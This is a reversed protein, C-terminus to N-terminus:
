KNAAVDSFISLFLIFLAYLCFSWAMDEVFFISSALIVFSFVTVVSLFAFKRNSVLTTYWPVALALSLGSLFLFLWQAINVFFASILFFAGFLLFLFSFYKVRLNKKHTTNSLFLQHRFVFFLFMQLVRPFRMSIELQYLFSIGVFNKTFLRLVFDFSNALLIYLLEYSWSLGIITRHNVFNFIKIDSYRRYLLIAVFFLSFDRVGLIFLSASYDIGPFLLILSLSFLAFFRIFLLVVLGSRLRLAEFTVFTRAEFSTFLALLVLIIQAQSSVFFPIVIAICFTFILILEAISSQKEGGAMDVTAASFVLNSFFYFSFINITYYGFAEQSLVKGMLLITCADILNRFLAAYKVM